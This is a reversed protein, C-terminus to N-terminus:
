EAMYPQSIHQFARCTDPRRRGRSVGSGVTLRPQTFLMGCDESGYVRITQLSKLGPGNDRDQKIVETGGGHEIKAECGVKSGVVTNNLRLKTGQMVDM